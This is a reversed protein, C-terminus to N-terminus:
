RFIMAGIAPASCGAPANSLPMSVAAVAVPTLHPLQQQQDGRLRPPSPRRTLRPARLPSSAQVLIPMDTLGIRRGDGLRSSLRLLGRWGLLVADASGRGATHIPTAPVGPVAGAGAAKSDIAGIEMARIAPFLRGGPSARGPPSSGPDQDREDEWGHTRVNTSNILAVRLRGTRGFAKPKEVSQLEYDCQLNTPAVPPRAAAALIVPGLRWAGHRSM